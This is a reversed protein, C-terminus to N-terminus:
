AASPTHRVRLAASALAATGAAVAAAGAVFARRDLAAFAAPAQHNTHM